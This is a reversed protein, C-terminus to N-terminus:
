GIIRISPERQARIGVDDPHEPDAQRVRLWHRFVSSLSPSLALCFIRVRPNDLYFSAQNAFYLKVTDVSLVLPRGHRNGNIVTATKSHSYSGLRDVQQQSMGEELQFKMTDAYSHERVVFTCDPGVRFAAEDYLSLLPFCSKYIALPM